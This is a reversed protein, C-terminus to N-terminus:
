GVTAAPYKAMLGLTEDIQQPQEFGITMADLLGLEQAFRICENKQGILQGEGYIKMGIIAKGNEKIKRLVPVVEETSADMKTSRPNIRALVVDVWPCTAATELAGLNHCSVGVTRVQKREKAEAMADMYPAMDQPWEPKMMCHLLVIDLYDTTLEHRFRQLTTAAMKQIQSGKTDPDVQDYRTWLKTLITVKERPIHRLAERFYVHTGYLDALDFFTIGREYAHRMLAVFKQFGMRSHDSQRNGGHMGTGQAVRSLTIGTNGLAVQPPAPIDGAAQASSGSTALYTAAGATATLFHRRNVGSM